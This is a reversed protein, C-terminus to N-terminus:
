QPKMLEAFPPYGRLGTLSPELHIWNQDQSTYGQAFAARLLDAAMEKEGLQAAIRARAFTNRGLLFPLQLRGLEDSIRLAQGRDGRLAACVGRDGAWIWARDPPTERALQDLIPQAEDARGALQLLLARMGRTGQTEAEAPPCSQLAELSRALTKASADRHGHARLELGVFLLLHGRQGASALSARAAIGREMEGLRGLAALAYTEQGLLWSVDPHLVQGRRIELLEREHEGLRHLTTTLIWFYGGSAHGARAHFRTWDLPATLAEVAERLRNADVASGAFRFAALADEPLLKRAERAAVYADGNRGSLMARMADVWLRQTPSLTTRRGELIGLRRSAEPYDQSNLLWGILSMEASSFGPDLELARRLHPIPQAGLEWATLFEQYAEYTPPNPERGGLWFPDLRVAVAGMVRQRAAELATMPTTRPGVAPPLAQFQGSTADTLRPQIRLAGGELSYTGSVVLGAGTEAALTSVPDRTSPPEDPARVGAPDTLATPGPAVQLGQIRTLGDSIHDAVTKGLTDLSADGTRNEFIAVAVRMADLSPKAARGRWSWVGAV